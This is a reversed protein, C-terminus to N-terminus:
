SFCFLTLTCLIHSQAPRELESAYSNLPAAPARTYSAKENIVSHKSGPRKKEMRRLKVHWKAASESTKWASSDRLSMVPEYAKRWVSIKRAGALARHEATRVFRKPFHSQELTPGDHVTRRGREYCNSGPIVALRLNSESHCCGVSQLFMCTAATAARMGHALGPKEQPSPHSSRAYVPRHRHQPGSVDWVKALQDFPCHPSRQQSALKQTPM